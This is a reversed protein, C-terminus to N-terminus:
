IFNYGFLSICDLYIDIGFSASDRLPDISHLEQFIEDEIAPLTIDDIEVTSLGDDLPTPAGWDMGFWELDDHSIEDEFFEAIQHQDRNRQDIIGNFWIRNPTQNRETRLSHNNWGAVFSSIVRNIRPLFVYHLIFLHVDNDTDLVGLIPFTM